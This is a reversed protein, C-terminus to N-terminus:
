QSLEFLADEFRVLGGLLAADLGPTIVERASLLEDVTLGLEGATSALQREEMRRLTDAPAAGGDASANM